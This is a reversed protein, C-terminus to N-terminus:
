LLLNERIIYLIINKKFGAFDNYGLFEMLDFAYWYRFNNDNGYDKAIKELTDGPTIEYVKGNGMTLEIM